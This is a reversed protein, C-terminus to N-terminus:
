TTSPILRSRCTIASWALVAGGVAGAPRCYRVPECRAGREGLQARRREAKPRTLNRNRNNVAKFRSGDIAVSAPSLVGMERCLEVFRACKILEVNRGAKRELRRSSRVRNLYGYIYLKLLM